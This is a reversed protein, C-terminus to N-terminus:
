CAELKSCMMVPTLLFFVGYSGGPPRKASSIPRPFDRTTMAAMARDMDLAASNGDFGLLCARVRVLAVRM